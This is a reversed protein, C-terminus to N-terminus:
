RSHDAKIRQLMLPVLVSPIGTGSYVRGQPDDPHRVTVRTQGDGNPEQTIEIGERYTQWSNM